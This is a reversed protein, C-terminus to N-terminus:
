INNVPRGASCRFPSSPQGDENEEEPEKLDLQRWFKRFFSKWSLPSLDFGPSGDSAFPFLNQFEFTKVRSHLYFYKQETMIDINSTVLLPPFTTQIPARHKCDLSVINGDLGNRLYTDFYGWTSHTADDLLAIKSESLPQLWFHSKHNVFSIVRGQLAKVLGMAFMSKGTNPQGHLVLCNRKPVGQLFDKFAALFCIFNIGQFRIFKVISRWDGEGEIFDLARRIWASMSMEKMEAKKYYRVMQACERVHKAQNNCKLWAMANYDEQACRAYYYAIAAEDVYNHDYAWQVMQSLEFPQEQGQQHTILTQNAIWTPLEGWTDSVSSIGTKWWYVAAPVSRQKPPELLLQEADVNLLKCFLKSVTDRNKAAKFALLYLGVFGRNATRESYYIYDCFQQLLTKSAQLVEDRAGFVAVVWHPCCTKNSKFPRTLESFGIEYVRKFTALKSARESSSKLLASSARGPSFNEKDNEPVIQSDLSCSITSDVQPEVQLSDDEAYGSDNLRRKKSNSSPKGSLTQSLQQLPKRATCYKRKLATLETEYQTAQQQAFLEASNGQDCEANDILDSVDSQACLNEGDEDGDDEDSCEAEMDILSSQIGKLEAM